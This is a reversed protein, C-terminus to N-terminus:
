RVSDVRVCEPWRRVEDLGPSPPRPYGHHALRPYSPERGEALTVVMAGSFRLHEYLTVEDAQDQTERDLAEVLVIGFVAGRADELLM